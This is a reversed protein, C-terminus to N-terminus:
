KPPEKLSSFHASPGQLMGARLMKRCDGEGEGPGTGERGSQGGM